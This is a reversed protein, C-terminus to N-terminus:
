GQLARMALAGVEKPSLLAPATCVRGVMYYAINKLVKETDRAMDQVRGRFHLLSCPNVGCKNFAPEEGATGPAHVERPRLLAPTSGVREVM